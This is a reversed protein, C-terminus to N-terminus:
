ALSQDSLSTWPITRVGRSLESFTKFNDWSKDGFSVFRSTADNPPVRETATGFVPHLQFSPVTFGPSDLPLLRFAIKFRRNETRQTGCLTAAYPLFAFGEAVQPFLNFSIGGIKM